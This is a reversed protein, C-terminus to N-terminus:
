IKFSLPILSLLSNQNPYPAVHLKIEPFVKNHETVEKAVAYSLCYFRMNRVGNIEKQHRTCLNMFACASRPSYLVTAYVKGDHIEKLCNKPIKKIETTDYSHFALYDFGKKKLANGLQGDNNKSTSHIILGQKKQTKKLIHEILAHVNGKANEIFSFGHQKAIEATKDGVTFIKQYHPCKKQTIKQCFGRVGNASTFIIAHVKEPLPPSTHRSHLDVKFVPSFLVRYGKEQLLPSLELFDIKPRTVLISPSPNHM